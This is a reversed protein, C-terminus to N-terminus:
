TFLMSVLEAASGALIVGAGFQLLTTFRIWKAGWAVALCILILVAAVPIIVKVDSTISTVIGTARTLGAAQAPAAGALVGALLVLRLEEKKAVKM